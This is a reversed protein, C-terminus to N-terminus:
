STVAEALAPRQWVLAGSVKAAPPPLKGTNVRWRAAPISCDLKNAIDELGVLDLKPPKPYPKWKPDPRRAPPRPHALWGDIYARTWMNRQGVIAAPILWSRAVWDEVTRRSVGALRAVDSTGVLDLSDTM